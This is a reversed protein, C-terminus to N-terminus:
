KSAKQSYTPKAHEFLWELNPECISSLVYYVPWSTTTMLIMFAMALSFALQLHPPLSMMYGKWGTTAQLVALISIHSLYNYLSRRSMNDLLSGWSGSGLMLQGVVLFSGMCISCVMYYMPWHFIGWYPGNENHRGASGDGRIDALYPHFTSIRLCMWVFCLLAIGSMKVRRDSCMKLLNSPDMSWGMVFFPFYTLWRTYEGSRLSSTVLALLFSAIIPYKM